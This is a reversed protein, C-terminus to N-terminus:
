IEMEDSLSRMALITDEVLEEVTVGMMNAGKEIVERSVGVAFSPSKFKKMVSKCEMDMVSKSPRMLAAAGILGTLEDVAYLVKEMYREPPTDFQAVEYGHSVVANILDEDLGLEGLIERCKVCHEKPYREFDIDHLLGIVAWYEENEIDYKKAFWRMVGSVVTSHRIHFPEKNYKYLINKAENYDPIKGM